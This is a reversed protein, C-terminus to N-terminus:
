DDFFYGFKKKVAGGSCRKAAASKFKELRATPLDVRMNSTAASTHVGRQPWSPIASHSDRRALDFTPSTRGQDTSESRRSFCRFSNCIDGVQDIQLFRQDSSSTQRPFPASLVHLAAPPDLLLGPALQPVEALRLAELSSQGSARSTM